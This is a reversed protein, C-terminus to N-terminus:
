CTLTIGKTQYLVTDARAFLEERSEGPQHQAVGVSASVHVNLMGAGTQVSYLGGMNAAVASARGAADPLATSLVALFEDGGWRCVVDDSRFQGVLRQSFSKLIQDGVRHGHRDNIDKFGDLDFLMICFARGAEIRHNILKEAERRNALGTLPDTAAEVEAQELRRRFTQLENQLQEVSAQTDRRMSDVCYKLNGVSASLRKRILGLNDLTSVAELECALGRFQTTHRDSRESMASAAEALMAMIERIDKERERITAGARRAYHQLGAEMEAMGQELTGVDPSAEAAKRIARLKRRYEATQEPTVEVVYQEMGRLAALYCELSARFLSNVKDLDSLSKRLSIM